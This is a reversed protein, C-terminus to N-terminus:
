QLIEIMLKAGFKLGEIFDKMAIDAEVDDNDSNERRKRAKEEQIICWLEDLINDIINRM